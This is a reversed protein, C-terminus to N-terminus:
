EYTVKGGEFPDAGIEVVSPGGGTGRDEKYVTVTRAYNQDAAALWMEAESPKCPGWHGDALDCFGDVECQVPMVLYTGQSPLQVMLRYKGPRDKREKAEALISRALARRRRQERTRRFGAEEDLHEYMEREAKWPNWSLIRAM